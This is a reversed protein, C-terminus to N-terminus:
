STREAIVCWNGTDYYCEVIRLGEVAEFLSPLEGEEYVHCYRDFVLAKKEEDVSGAAPLTDKIAILDVEGEMKLHWPVFVDASEFIHGSRGSTQEKAWAYFLMRGGICLVRKAEAIAAIRRERTSLHHLVAISLAADFAGTRLPVATCDAAFVEFKRERCIELLKVSFDSGIAFGVSECAPMNKGNGCGIDAVVSHRPLGDIFAQVRPWAKYRTGHWHPAISDYVDLVHKAEIDPVHAASRSETKLLEQPLPRSRTKAM